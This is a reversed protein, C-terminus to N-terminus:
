GDIFVQPEVKIRAVPADRGAFLDVWFAQATQGPVGDSGLRGEFPLKVPELEDPAWEGDLQVYRERYATVQVADEPNLGVQLTFSDGPRGEVVVHFSSFANRAIAPSLIERPPEPGRDARIRHGFPDTRTFESYVNIEQAATLAGFVTFVALYIALRRM